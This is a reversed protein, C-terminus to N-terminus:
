TLRRDNGDLTRMVCHGALRSAIAEGLRPALEAPALNTTVLLGAGETIRTDIAVFLQALAWESPKVKDLDDLVVTATGTLDELAAKREDSDFAASARAILAPVSVWRVAERKLRELTVAAALHTKGVGVPGSLLVGQIERRGWARAADYAAGTDDDTIAVERLGAPLRSQGIRRLLARAEVAPRCGECVTSYNRTPDYEFECPNGDLDFYEDCETCHLIADTPVTSTM